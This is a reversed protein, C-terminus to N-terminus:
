SDGIHYYGQSDTSNTPAGSCLRSRKGLSSLACGRLRRNQFEGNTDVTARQSRTVIGLSGAYVVAGSLPEGASNVVRGTITGNPKESPKASGAAQAWCTSAISLIPAVIMLSFIMPKSLLM